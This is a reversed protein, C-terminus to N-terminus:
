FVWVNLLVFKMAKAAASLIIKVKYVFTNLAFSQTINETKIAQESSKKFFHLSM